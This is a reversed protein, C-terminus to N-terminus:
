FGALRQRFAPNDADQSWAELVGFRQIPGVKDFPPMAIWVAFGISHPKHPAFVFM